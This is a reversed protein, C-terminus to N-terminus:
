TAAIVRDGNQSARGRSVLLDIGHTARTEAESTVRSMGIVQCVAKALEHVNSSGSQDLLYATINALEQLPVDNVHRKSNETDNSLRFGTWLSHDVGPPWYFYTDETDLIRLTQPALERLRAAIRTGTRGLNWARAMRRFLDVEAIPGEVTIVQLMQATILKNSSPATFAEASGGAIVAASYVATVAVPLATVPVAAVMPETVPAPSQMAVPPDAIPEALLAELVAHLKSLERDQDTWWDTSWIRHLKWGLGELVLQRLRDRDRATAGSHYTRGDCEIGLLYRGPARPDVVGMDLRFGTCGVQPHVQWGKDTLARIVAVEFPSDPERGTPSSEALLARAGNKAFELYNKLDRVGASSVRATDIQDPQLTSFIIVQERARTIAVNLRRQGGELNLPGFSMTVHGALDPGYTISFLIIDREDGQVNELNKIFLEEDTREAILRDLESNARRRGDLLTEILAMQAQNFTVVGLSQTRRAPDL